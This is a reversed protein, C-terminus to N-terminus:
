EPDIPDKAGKYAEIIRLLTKVISDYGVIATAGSLAYALMCGGIETGFAAPVPIGFKYGVFGITVGVGIAHLPLTLKYIKKWGKLSKKLTKEDLAINKVVQGCRGILFPVVGLIILWSDM